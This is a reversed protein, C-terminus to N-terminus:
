MYDAILNGLFDGFYTMKIYFYTLFSWKKDNKTMKQDNKLCNWGHM